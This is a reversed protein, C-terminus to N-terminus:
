NTKVETNVGTEPKTEAKTETATNPETAVPAPTAEPKVPPELVKQPGEAKTEVPIETKEKLETEKEPLLISEKEVKPQQLQPPPLKQLYLKEKPLESLANWVLQVLCTSDKGGSFGIIWPRNDSLYVKRIEEYIDSLSKKDFISESL